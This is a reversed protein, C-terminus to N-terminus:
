VRHFLGTIVADEIEPGSIRSDHGIGVTLETVPKGTDEALWFAFAQGIKNSADASLTIHEGAIGELAIGRIDSGNQLKMMAADTM